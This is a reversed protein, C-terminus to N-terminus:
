KLHIVLSDPVTVSSEVTGELEGPSKVGRLADSAPLDPRTEDYLDFWPFGYATYAAANVPTSPPQRGTIAEFQESNVIYIVAEQPADGSWTDSGYSDPYVKQKMRGGAGLGMAAGDAKMAMAPAQERVLLLGDSPPTDPFRGPRPEFVALRLAGDSESGRVQAEITQGAGLPVAIFQRIMSEGAKLGDLWPQAPVVLYDQPDAHLELDWPTGSVANVLGVGVKVANPKWHAGDFDIWMAERQYMPIFYGHERDWGEPVRDAFDRVRYLPFRGLGPPLPYRRGDDPIRLTRQFSLSFRDSFVLADDRLVVPRPARDQRPPPDETRWEDEIEPSFELVSLLMAIGLLFVHANM